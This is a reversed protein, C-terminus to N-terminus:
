PVSPRYPPRVFAVENSGALPLLWEVPISLKVLGDAEEIVYPAFSTSLTTDPVLEAVVEVRLGVMALSKQAATAFWDRALRLAYLDSDIPVGAPPAPGKVVDKVFSQIDLSLDEGVIGMSQLSAIISGLTDSMSLDRQPDIVLEAGTESPRVTYSFGDGPARLLFRDGDVVLLREDDLVSAAPEVPVGDRLAQLPDVNYTLISYGSSQASQQISEIDAAIRGFPLIYYDTSLFESAADAASAATAALLLAALVFVTSIRRMM